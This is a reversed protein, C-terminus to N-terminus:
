LKTVNYVTADQKLGEQKLIFIIKELSFLMKNGCHRLSQLILRCCKVESADWGGGM